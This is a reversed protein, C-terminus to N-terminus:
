QELYARVYGEDIGMEKAIEAVSMGSDRFRKTVAVMNEGVEIVHGDPDYFRICRQGWPQTALPHVYSIDMGELKKLFSDMDDEEFYLEGDRGKFRVDETGLFQKWGALDQLAVGCALTVNGGYDLLVEQGLVEKYFKLSRAMDTVAILTSQYRMQM